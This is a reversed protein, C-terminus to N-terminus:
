KVIGRTEIKYGGGAIVLGDRHGTETNLIYGLVAFPHEFEHRYISAGDDGKTTAYEIAVLDGFAVIADHPGVVPIALTEAAIPGRKGWHMAAYDAVAKESVVLSNSPNRRRAGSPPLPTEEAAAFYGAARAGERTMLYLGPLPWQYRERYMRMIAATSQLADFAKRARQLADLSGSRFHAIMSLEFARQLDLAHQTLAAFQERDKIANGTPYWPAPNERMARGLGSDDADDSTDDDAFYEPDDFTTEERNEDPELARILATELEEAERGTTTVWIAVDLRGPAAHTWEQQFAFTHQAHVHRLLTKWLRATHSEGVYLVRGSVRDRFAYAGHQGAAAERLGPTYTGGSRLPHWTPSLGDSLAAPAAPPATHDPRAKRRRKATKKAAAM